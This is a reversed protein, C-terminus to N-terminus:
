LSLPVLKVPIHLTSVFTKYCQVWFNLGCDFKEIEIEIEEKKENKKSRFV